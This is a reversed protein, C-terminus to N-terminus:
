KAFFNENKEFFDIAEAVIFTSGGIFLLDDEKCVSRFKKIADEVTETKEGQLGISLCRKALTDANLARPIKAQTFYYYSSVPLLGMIKEIDKDAVFGIISFLRSCNQKRLQSFVVTLGHVNHGTDCVVMPRQNLVEWRGRLGTSEAATKLGERINDDSWNKGTLSLFSQNQSLVYLATLVTRLNNIQYDGKLDLSYDTLKIDKFRYLKSFLIKSGREGAFKEFITKTTANHEGIVVPVNDKIIGGKELAIASITSGLQECHDLGINTIISLWPQVINTSDLRGGLGTEIVAIDVKKKAFYDFALATTIEFFSPKHESMFSKHKILFEYVDEKSIMEGNIKIRERFDLLHPSTYLATKLGFKMFVSALMHSVSGKGNTGAIHIVPYSRHPHGLMQDFEEMTELGEKYAISGVQQYSPFQKFIYEIESNYKEQDVM